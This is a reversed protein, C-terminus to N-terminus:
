PAPTNLNSLLLHYFRVHEALNKVGIREDIGHSEIRGRRRM